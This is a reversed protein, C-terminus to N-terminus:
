IHLYFTLHAIQHNYYLIAYASILPFVGRQVFIHWKKPGDGLAIEPLLGVCLLMYLHRLAVSQIKKRLVTGRTSNKGPDVSLKDPILTLGNLFLANQHKHILGKLKPGGIIKSYVTCLLQMPISTDDFTHRIIQPQDKMEELSNRSADM